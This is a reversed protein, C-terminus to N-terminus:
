TITPQGERKQQNKYFLVVGIFYKNSQLAGVHLIIMGLETKFAFIFVVCIHCLMCMHVYCCLLLLEMVACLVVIQM